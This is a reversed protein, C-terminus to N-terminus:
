LKYNRSMLLYVIRDKLAKEISWRRAMDVEEPTLNREEDVILHALDELVDLAEAAYYALAAFLRYGSALCADLASGWRLDHEFRISQGSDSVLSTHGRVEHGSIRSDIEGRIGPNSTAVRGEIRGSEVEWRAVHMVYPLIIVRDRLPFLGTSRDSTEM